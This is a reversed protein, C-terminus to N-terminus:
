PAVSTLRSRRQIERVVTPDGSRVDIARGDDSATIDVGHMYLPCDGADAFGRARAFALHCRMHALVADVPAGEAMRIRVGDALEEILRVPGLLPCAIRTQPAFNRCEVEEYKELAVAAIEHERAHRLHREADSVRAAVALRGPACLRRRRARDV